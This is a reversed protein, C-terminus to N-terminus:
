PLSSEEHNQNECAMETGDCQKRMKSLRKPAEWLVHIITLCAPDGPLVLITVDYM